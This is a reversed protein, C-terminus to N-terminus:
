SDSALISRIPSSFSRGSIVSGLAPSAAYRVSSSARPAGKHVFADVDVDVDAAGGGAADIVVGVAAGLATCPPVKHSHGKDDVRDRPRQGM